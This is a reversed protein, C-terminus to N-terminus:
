QMAVQLQLMNPVKTENPLPGSYNNTDFGQDPTAPTHPFGSLSALRLDYHSPIGWSLVWHWCISAASSAKDEQVEDLFCEKRKTLFRKICLESNSNGPTLLQLKAVSGQAAEGDRGTPVAIAKILPM